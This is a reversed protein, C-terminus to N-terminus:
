LPGTASLMELECNPSPRVRNTDRADADHGVVLVHLGAGDCRLRGERKVSRERHCVICAHSANGTDPRKRDQQQRRAGSRHRRRPLRVEYGSVGQQQLTTVVAQDIGALEVALEDRSPTARRSCCAHELRIQQNRQALFLEANRHGIRQRVRV